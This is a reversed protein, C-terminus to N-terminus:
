NDVLCYGYLSNCQQRHDTYSYLDTCRKKDDYLNTDTSNITYSLHVMSCTVNSDINQGDTCFQVCKRILM